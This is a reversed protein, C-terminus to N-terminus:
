ENPVEGGLKCNFIHYHRPLVPRLPVVTPRIPHCASREEEREVEGGGRLSKTTAKRYLGQANPGRLMSLLTTSEIRYSTSQRTSGRVSALPLTTDM